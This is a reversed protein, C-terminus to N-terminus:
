VFSMIIEVLPWLFRVFYAHRHMDQLFSERATVYQWSWLSSWFYWKFMCVSIDITVLKAERNPSHQLWRFSWGTCRMMVLKMYPNLGDVFKTLPCLQGYSENNAAPWMCLPRIFRSGMQTILNILSILQVYTSCFAFWMIVTITTYIYWLKNKTWMDTQWVSIKLLIHFFCCFYECCPWSTVTCSWYEKHSKVLSHRDSPTVSSRYETATQIYVCDSSLPHLTQRWSPKINPFTWGTWATGCVM